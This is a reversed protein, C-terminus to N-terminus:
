ITSSPIPDKLLREAAEQVVINTSADGFAGLLCGIERLDRLDDGIQLVQLHSTYLQFSRQGIDPIVNATTVGTISVLSRGRLDECRPPAIRTFADLDKADVSDHVRVRTLIDM